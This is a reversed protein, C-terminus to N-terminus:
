GNACIFTQNWADLFWRLYSSAQDLDGLQFELVVRERLLWLEHPSLALGLDSYRRASEWDGVPQFLQVYRVYVTVLWNRDRLREALPLLAVTYQRAGELDGVTELNRAGIRYAELETPLDDVHSALRLARQIKENCETFNGHYSDARAANVGTQM